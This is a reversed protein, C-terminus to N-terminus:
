PRKLDRETAISSREHEGHGGVSHGLLSRGILHLIVLLLLLAIIIIGFLKVWRPTNQSSEQGYMQRGAQLNM